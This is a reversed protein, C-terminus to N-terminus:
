FHIPNLGQIRVDYQIGILTNEIANLHVRNKLVVEGNVVENAFCDLTMALEPKIQGTNQDLWPGDLASSIRADIIWNEDSNSSRL